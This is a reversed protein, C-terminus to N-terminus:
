DFIFRLYKWTNKPCLIPGGIPTLDLLPPNFIGHSRNFYFIETKMHEIVLGFSDLLKSLVNYSCFLHSNSTNLSKNQTIILGDDVFLLTSIPIKLNKLHKKLIYLFPSLYLASLIPSLASGQGVRVNVEFSLSHLDNWVYSTKRRVLYNKFFFSVKSDLGAKELILFLLQHNLSPFFQSINFALISTM